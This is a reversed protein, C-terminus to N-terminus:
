KCERIESLNDRRPEGKGRVGLRLFLGVSRLGNSSEYPSAWTSLDEVGVIPTPGQGGLFYPEGARRWKEILEPQVKAWQEATRWMTGEAHLMGENYFSWEDKHVAFPDMLPENIYSLNIYPCHEEKGDYEGPIDGHDLLYMHQIAQYTRLGSQSKGIKARIQANLFNPVAIAALIGIIAVVILLEILTFARRM